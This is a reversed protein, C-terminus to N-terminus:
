TKTGEIGKQEERKNMDRIKPSNAEEQKDSANKNNLDQNEMQLKLVNLMELAEYLSPMDDTESKSSITGKKDCINHDDVDYDHKAVKSKRYWCVAYPKPLPLFWERRRRLYSAHGSKMVFHRLSKYDNWLSLQPMLTKDNQFLEPQKQQQQHLGFNSDYMWIFGPISKAIDNIPDLALRFEEMSPDDYPAKIKGINFCAINWKNSNNDNPKLRTKLVDELSLNNSDNNNDSTQSIRRKFIHIATGSSIAEVTTSYSPIPHHSFSTLSLSSLLTSKIPLINPANQNKFKRLRVLAGSLRSSSLWVRDNSFM